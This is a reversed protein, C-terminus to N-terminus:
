VIEVGLIRGVSKTFPSPIREADKWASIARDSVNCAKRILARHFANLDILRLAEDHTASRKM